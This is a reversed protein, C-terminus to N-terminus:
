SFNYQFAGSSACHQTANTAVLRCVRVTLVVASFRLPRLLSAPTTVLTRSTWQSQGWDLRRVSATDDTLSVHTVLSVGWMLWRATLSFWCCGAGRERSGGRDCRRWVRWEVRISCESTRCSTLQRKLVGGNSLTICVSVYMYLAGACLWRWYIKTFM